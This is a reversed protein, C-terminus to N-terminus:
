SPKRKPARRRVPKALRGPNLLGPIDTELAAALRHLVRLSPNAEAGTATAELQQVRRLSVKALRALDPQSLGLNLRRDHISRALREITAEWADGAV